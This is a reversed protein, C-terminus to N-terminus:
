TRHLSPSSSIVRLTISCYFTEMSLQFAGQHRVKRFVPQIIKRKQKEADSRTKFLVYRCRRCLQHVSRSQLQSSLKESCKPLWMLWMTEVSTSADRVSWDRSRM